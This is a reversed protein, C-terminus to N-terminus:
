YRRKKHKLLFVASNITIVWHKLIQERKWAENCIEIHLKIGEEGMYNIMEPYIGDHRHVKGSKIRWVVEKIEELTISEENEEERGGWWAKDECMTFRLFIEDMM